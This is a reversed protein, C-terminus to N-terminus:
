KVLAIIISTIAAMLTLGSIIITLFFQTKSQMNMKDIKDNIAIISENAMDKKAERTIETALLNKLDATSDKVIPSAPVPSKPPYNSYSM